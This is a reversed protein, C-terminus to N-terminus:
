RWSVISSTGEGEVESAGILSKKYNAAKQPECCFTLLARRWAFWHVKSNKGLSIARCILKEQLGRRWNQASKSMQSLIDGTLKHGDDMMELEKQSICVHQFHVSSCVCVSLCVCYCVGVSLCINWLTHQSICAWQRIAPKHFRCTAPALCNRFPHWATATVAPRSRGTITSIIGNGRSM